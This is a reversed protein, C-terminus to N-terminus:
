RLTGEARTTSIIGRRNYKERYRPIDVLPALDVLTVPGGQPLGGKVM